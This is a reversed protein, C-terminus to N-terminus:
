RKELTEITDDKQKTGLDLKKNHDMCEELKAELEQVKEKQTKVSNNLYEVEVTSCKVLDSRFFFTHIRLGKM